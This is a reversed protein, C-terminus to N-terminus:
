FKSCLLACIRRSRPKAGPLKAALCNSFLIVAPSSIPNLADAFVKAAMITSVVIIPIPAMMWRRASRSVGPHIAANSTGSGTAAHSRTQVSDLAPAAVAIRPRIINQAMRRQRPTSAVRGALDKWTAKAM